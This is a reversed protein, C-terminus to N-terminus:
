TLSNLKQLVKKYYSNTSEKTYGTGGKWLRIAKEIDNEPNYYSQVFYFIEISKEKNFRDNYTFKKCKAIKNCDDIMVKSIQLYGVFRGCPSVIKENYGSEVDAIALIVNNWNYSENAHSIVSNLFIILVVLFRKVM